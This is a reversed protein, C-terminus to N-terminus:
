APESNGLLSEAYVKRYNAFNTAATRVVQFLQPLDMMLERVNKENFPLEKGERDTVHRWDRIIHKVYCDVQIARRVTEDMLGRADAELYPKMRESYEYSFAVNSGGVYAIRFAGFTYTYWIGDLELSEDTEFMEYTNSVPRLPTQASVEEHEEVNEGESTLEEGLAETKTKPKTM